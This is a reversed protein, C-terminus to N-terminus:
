AHLENDESGRNISNPISTLARRFIDNVGNKCSLSFFFLLPLIHTSNNDLQINTQTKFEISSHHINQYIQDLDSTLIWQAYAYNTSTLVLIQLGVATIVVIVLM